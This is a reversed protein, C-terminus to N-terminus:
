TKVKILVIMGKINLRFYIKISSKRCSFRPKKADTNLLARPIEKLIFVTYKTKENSMVIKAMMMKATEKWGGNSAMVDLRWNSSQDGRRAANLFACDVFELSSLDVAKFSAQHSAGSGGLVM